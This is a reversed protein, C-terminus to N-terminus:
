SPWSPTETDDAADLIATVAAHSILTGVLDNEGWYHQRSDGLLVRLAAFKREAIEVKSDAAHCHDLLRACTLCVTGWNLGDEYDRVRAAFYQTNSIWRVAERRHHRAEAAFWQAYQEAQTAYKATDAVAAVSGSVDAWVDNWTCGATNVLVNRILGLSQEAEAARALAKFLADEADDQEDVLAALRQNEATLRQVEAALKAADHRANRERALSVPGNLYRGCDGCVLRTGLSRHIQDGYVGYLNEHPCRNRRFWTM